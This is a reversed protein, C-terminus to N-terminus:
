PMRMPRTDITVRPDPVSDAVDSDTVVVKAVSPVKAARRLINWDSQKVLGYATVGIFVLAPAGVTLVLNATDEAVWQRGVAYVCVAQICTRAFSAVQGENIYRLPPTPDPAEMGIEDAM